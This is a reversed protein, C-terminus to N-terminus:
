YLWQTCPINLWHMPRPDHRWQNSLKQHQSLGGSAPSYKDFLYLIRIDGFILMIREPAKRCSRFQAYNQSPVDITVLHQWWHASSRWRDIVSLTWSQSVIRQVTRQHRFATKL